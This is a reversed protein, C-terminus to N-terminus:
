TVQSKLDDISFQLRNINSNITTLEANLESFQDDYDVSTSINYLAYAFGGVVLLRAILNWPRPIVMQFDVAAKGEESQSAHM